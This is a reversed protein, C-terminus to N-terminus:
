VSRPTDRRDTAITRPRRPRVPGVRQHEFSHEDRVLAGHSDDIEHWHATLCGIDYTDDFTDGTTHLQAHVEHYTEIVPPRHGPYARYAINELCDSTGIGQVQMRRHWCTAFATRRHRLKRDCCALPNGEHKSPM